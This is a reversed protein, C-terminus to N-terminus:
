DLYNKTHQSWGIPGSKDGVMSGAQVRGILETVRSRDEPLPTLGVDLDKSGVEENNLAKLLASREVRALKDDPVLALASHTGFQCLTAERRVNDRLASAVEFIHALRSWPNESESWTVLLAVLPAPETASIRDLEHVRGLLYGVTHLGSLPEIGPTSRQAAMADVWADTVWHHADSRSAIVDGNSELIDWLADIDALACTLDSEHEVCEWAYITLAHAIKEPGADHSTQGSTEWLAQLVADVGPPPLVDGEDAQAGHLAQWSATLTTAPGGVHRCGSNHRM